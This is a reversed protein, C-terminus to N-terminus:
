KLRNQSISLVVGNALDTTQKKEPFVQLAIFSVAICVLLHILIDTVQFPTTDIEPKFGLSEFESHRIGLAYDIMYTLEVIPRYLGLEPLMPPYPRTFIEPLYKVSKVYENDRVYAVDDGTFENQIINAFTIVVLLSILPLSYTSKEFILSLLSQKDPRKRTKTM